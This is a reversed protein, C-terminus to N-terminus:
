VWSKWEYGALFGEELTTKGIWNTFRVKKWQSSSIKYTPPDGKELHVDKSRQQWMWRSNWLLLFVNLFNAPLTAADSHLMLSSTLFKLMRSLNKWQHSISSWFSLYRGLSTWVVMQKQRYTSSIKIIGVRGHQGVKGTLLDWSSFM